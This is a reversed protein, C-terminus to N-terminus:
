FSLQVYGPWLLTIDNKPEVKWGISCTIIFNFSNNGSDHHRLLLGAPQDVPQRDSDSNRHVCLGCSSGPEQVVWEQHGVSLFILRDTDFAGPVNFAFISEFELCINPKISCFITWYQLLHLSFIIFSISLNDRFIRIWMFETGNKFKRNM